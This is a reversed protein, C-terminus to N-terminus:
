SGSLNSKSSEISLAVIWKGLAGRSEIDLTAPLAIDESDIDPYKLRALMTEANPANNRVASEFQNTASEGEQRSIRYRPDGTAAFGEAIIAVRLHIYKEQMRQLARLALKLETSDM